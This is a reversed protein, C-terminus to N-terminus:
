NTLERSNCARRLVAALKPISQKISFHEIVRQRGNRGLERALEPQCLVSAMGDAMASIDLEECLLATSGHMMTDKIGAHRTAIVPLGCSAAELVGVPSGESDGNLARISHQAFARSTQMLQRVKEPAQVGPFEVASEIKLATVLNRCAAWLPGDGVM